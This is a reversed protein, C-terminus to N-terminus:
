KPGPTPPAEMDSDSDLELLSEALSSVDEDPDRLAKELYSRAAPGGVDALAELAEYRNDPSPDSLAAAGLLDVVPAGETMDALSQIAALRVEEDADKLAEGLIPIAEPNDSAGLLTVATLRREPDPDQLAIQKLAPIDDPDFDLDVGAAESGAGADTTSGSRPKLHQMAKEGRNGSPVEIKGGSEPEAQSRGASMGSAAKGREHAERLEQLRRRVVEQGDGRPRVQPEQAPPAEPAPQPGSRLYVVVLSLAAVSGLVVLWRVRPTPNESPKMVVAANM